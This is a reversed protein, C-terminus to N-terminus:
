RVLKRTKEVYTSTIGLSQFYSKGFIRKRWTHPPSGPGRLFIPHNLSTKEVYTSTIRFKLNWPVVTQLKRWTHPPSGPRLRQSKLKLLNEGRIHLHDGSLILAVLNTLTKEVYTSTIGQDSSSLYRLPRKRWTHPPSGMKRLILSLETTNEGRIHLHDGLLGFAIVFSTTKEVYTSTIRYAFQSGNKFYHKRWTHPPSGAKRM